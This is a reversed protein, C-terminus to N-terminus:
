GASKPQQQKAERVAARRQKMDESHCQRCTRQKPRHPQERCTSCLPNGGKVHIQAPMQSYTVLIMPSHFLHEAHFTRRCGVWFVM